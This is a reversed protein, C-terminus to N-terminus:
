YKFNITLPNKWNNTLRGYKWMLPDGKEKKNQGYRLKPATKIPLKKKQMPIGPILIDYVGKAGAQSTSLVSKKSSGFFTSYNPIETINKITSESGIIDRLKSSLGGKPISPVSLLSKPISPEEIIRSLASNRIKSPTVITYEPEKLYSSGIDSAKYNNKKPSHRNIKNIARPITPVEAPEFVNVSMKKGSWKTFYKSQTKLFETDPPIVLERERSGVKLGQEMKVTTYGVGKKAGSFMFANAKTLDKSLGAPIREIGKLGIFDISPDISKSDGGFLKIKPKTGARTFHLSADPGVYLGPTESTGPITTLKKPLEISTSHIGYNSSPLQEPYRAKTKEFESIINTVSTGKKATPFMVNGTIVEQRALDTVPIETKQSFKLANKTGKTAKGLASFAGVTLATETLFEVPNEKLDRAAGVTLSSGMVVAADPIVDPNKIATETGAPLMLASGILKGSLSVPVSAVTSVVDGGFGSSKIKESTEETFNLVDLGQKYLYRSPGSVDKDGGSLKSSLRNSAEATKKDVWSVVTNLFGSKSKGEPTNSENKLSETLKVSPPTTALSSLGGVSTVTNKPNMGTVEATAENLSYGARVLSNINAKQRAHDRLEQKQEEITKTEGKSSSGGSGSCKNDEKYPKHWSKLKSGRGASVGSGRTMSSGAGSSFGVRYSAM